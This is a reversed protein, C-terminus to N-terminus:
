SVTISICVPRASPENLTVTPILFKTEKASKILFGGVYVVNMLFVFVTFNQRM